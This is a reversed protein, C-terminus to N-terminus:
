SVHPQPEASPLRPKRSRVPLRVVFTTGGEATSTVDITGDHALVIERAIYLGLGLGRVNADSQGSHRVLPLFLTRLADHPIVEGENHVRLVADEGERSLDVHVPVGLAGYQLANAALNSLVQAVRDGDWDGVVTGDSTFQLERDPFAQRLEAIVHVCTQTLDLHQPHIPIGSGLRTRTLDLLDDIMRSMRGASRLIRAAIRQERADPTAGRELNHAGMMIAGLPNRLDHGLIALFQERTQTIEDTYWTAAQGLTEDLAENFRTIERAEAGHSEGWRRLVSARLARYEAVLEDLRLGSKLRETAHRHGIAGLAGEAQKGKGKDSQQADTQPGSMDAVVADLLEEAHDRLGQDDIGESWPLLTRAFQAWEDAIAL